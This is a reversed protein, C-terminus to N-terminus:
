FDVRLRLTSTRPSALATGSFISAFNIVNLRDTINKIDGQVRLVFPEKKWLDLGGSVDLAFSPRVRGAPLNVRDVVRSGFQDILTSIDEGNLEVPLGSGASAGVAISRFLV